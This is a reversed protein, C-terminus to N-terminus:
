MKSGEDMRKHEMEKMNMAEDKMSSGEEKMHNKEHEYKGYKKEYYEKSHNEDHKGKYEHAMARSNRDMEMASGSSGEEYMGHGGKGEDHAGDHAMATSAYLMGMLILPIAIFMKKM